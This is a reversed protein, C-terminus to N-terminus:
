QIKKKFHFAQKLRVGEKMVMKVQSLRSINGSPDGEVAALDALLGPKVSGV